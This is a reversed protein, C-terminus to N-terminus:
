SLLACGAEVAQKPWGVLVYVAVVGAAARFYTTGPVWVNFLVTQGGPLAGKAQQQQQQQKVAAREKQRVQLTGIEALVSKSGGSNKGTRFNVRATPIGTKTDFAPLLLDGLEKAQPRDNLFCLYFM